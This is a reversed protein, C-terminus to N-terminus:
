GAIAFFLALASSAIGVALLVCFLYAQGPSLGTIFPSMAARARSSLSCNRAGNDAGKVEDAQSIMTSQTFHLPVPPVAPPAPALLAPRATNGPSNQPFPQMVFRPAPASHSVVPRGLTEMFLGKSSRLDNKRSTSSSPPSKWRHGPVRSDGWLERDAKEKLAKERTLRANLEQWTDAMGRLNEGGHSAPPLGASYESEDAIVMSCEHVYPLHQSHVYSDSSFSVSPRRFDNTRPLSRVTSAANSTVQAQLDAALKSTAASFDGRKELLEQLTRQKHDLAHLDARLTALHDASQRTSQQRETEAEMIKQCLMRHEAEARAVAAGQAEVIQKSIALVQACADTEAQTSRDVYVSVPLTRACAVM